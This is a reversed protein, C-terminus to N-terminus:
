ARHGVQEGDDKHQEDRVARVAAKASAAEALAELEGLDVFRRPGRLADHELATRAEAGELRVLPHKILAALAIPDAADSPNILAAIERTVAIAYREAVEELEGLASAPALGHAVLEEPKRLTASRKIDIRSM